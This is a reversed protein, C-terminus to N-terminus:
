KVSAGTFKVKYPWQEDNSSDDDWAHRVYAKPAGSVVFWLKSCKEPVTFKALGSDNSFIESYVREGTTLYAVYGYRWGANQPRIINYDADETIGVFEALVETGVAPTSLSIVNYGTSQICKSPKVQLYGDELKNYAWTHKGIFNKGLDRLADVDWTVMRRAYDFVEDNFQSVSLNHLRMYTESPDEPSYSKKWLEAVEEIGHKHIWYSHIFYNSYRPDEHYLHMHACDLYGQFYYNNFMENPYPQFSQWQATQEWFANGGNGGFGYRWGSKSDDAGGNYIHDCYTQYQFSHGIEHAITSGVPQCTNPSVWLAGITNDYGSGTALWETQYNLFIMMKYKDLYSEDKGTDAFKLEDINIQYFWEAKELLDDIDVKYASSTANTPIPDEGYEDWHTGSMWFVIFHESQRSRGYFWKSDSRYLDMSRIEQPIYIKSVDVDGEALIKVKRAQTIKFNQKDKGSRIVFKASRESATENASIYFYVSTYSNSSDGEFVSPTVWDADEPAEIKWLYTSKVKLTVRCSDSKASYSDRNVTITAEHDEDYPVVPEEPSSKECAAFLFPLTLLLLLHKKM